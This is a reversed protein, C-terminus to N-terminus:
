GLAARGWLDFQRDPKAGQRYIPLVVSNKNTAQFHVRGVSLKEPEIMQTGMPPLRSFTLRSIFRRRRKRMTM